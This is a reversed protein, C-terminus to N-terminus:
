ILLVVRHAEISSYSFCAVHWDPGCFAATDRTQVKAMRVICKGGNLCAFQGTANVVIGYM